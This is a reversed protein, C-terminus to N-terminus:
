ATERVRQLRARLELTLLSEIEATILEAADMGRIHVQDKLRGASLKMQVLDALSIVM